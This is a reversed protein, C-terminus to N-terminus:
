AEKEARQENCICVRAATPSCERAANSSCFRITNTSCVPNSSSFNATNSTYVQAANSSCARAATSSYISASKNAKTADKCISPLQSLVSPPPQPNRSLSALTSIKYWSAILFTLRDIKDRTKTEALKSTEFSDPYGEKLLARRINQCTKKVYAAYGAFLMRMTAQQPSLSTFSQDLTFATIIRFISSVHSASTPSSSSTPPNNLLFFPFLLGPHRSASFYLDRRYLILNKAFLQTALTHRECM